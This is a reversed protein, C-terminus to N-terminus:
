RAGMSRWYANLAGNTKILWVLPGVLIALRPDGVPRDHRQGPPAPELLRGVSGIAAYACM